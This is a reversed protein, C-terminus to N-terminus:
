QIRPLKFIEDFFKYLNALILKHLQYGQARKIFYHCYKQNAKKIINRIIANSAKM